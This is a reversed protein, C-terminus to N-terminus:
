TFAGQRKSKPIYVNTKTAARCPWCSRPCVREPPGPHDKITDTRRLPM